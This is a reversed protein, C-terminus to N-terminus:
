DARAEVQATGSAALSRAVAAYLVVGLVILVALTIGGSWLSLNIRVGRLLGAEAPTLARDAPDAPSADTGVGDPM